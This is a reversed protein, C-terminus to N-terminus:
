ASQRERRKAQRIFLHKIYRRTALSPSIPQHTNWASPPWAGFKEKYKYSAWGPKYGKEVVYGLLESYFHQREMLSAETKDVKLPILKGEHVHFEKALAEFHFGCHPCTLSGSFIIKCQQCTLQKIEGKDKKKRARKDKTLGQIGALTWYREEHVYGHEYVSGAHDLVRLDKKGPACRLGRGISQLYRVINKTPRALVVCSLEPLDYGYTALDVNCLVQTEGTGFRGFIAKRETPDTKADCHEAAVGHRRFDEALWVSKGVSPAFVATRREPAFELWHEVINGILPEMAAERGERVYENNTVKIKDLDPKEPAFYEVPVLYGQETLERVNSCPVIREFLQGLARGDPRAPTATLGIIRANPYMYLLALRQATIYLHVEDCIVIDAPPLALSKRRIVRSVLTDLSAVQVRGYLNQDDRGATLLSYNMLDYQDLKQCLQGVLEVRPAMLTVSMGEGVAAQTIETALFTKGSGTPACIIFCREKVAPLTEMLFRSQYPRALLM